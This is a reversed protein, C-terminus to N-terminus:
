RTGPGYGEVEGHMRRINVESKERYQRALDSPSIGLRDLYHIFLGLFALIDAFEDAVRTRDIDFDKKWPKWGLERVFEGIEDHLSLAYVAFNEKTPELAGPLQGSVLYQTEALSRLGLYINGLGGAELVTNMVTAENIEITSETATM